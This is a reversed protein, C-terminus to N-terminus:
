SVKDAGGSLMSDQNLPCICHVPGEHREAIKQGECFDRGDCSVSHRAASSHLKDESSNRSSNGGMATGEAERELLWGCRCQLQLPHPKPDTWVERYGLIAPM